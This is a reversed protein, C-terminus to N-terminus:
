KAKLQLLLSFNPEISQISQVALIPDPRLGPGTSLFEARYAWFATRAAPDVTRSRALGHWMKSTWTYSSLRSVLDQGPSSAALRIDTNQMGAYPGLWQGCIDEAIVKVLTIRLVTFSGRSYGLM